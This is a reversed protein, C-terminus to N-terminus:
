INLLYLLKTFTCSLPPPLNKKYFNLILLANWYFGTSIEFGLRNPFRKSLFVGLILSIVKLKGSNAGAHLFDTWEM